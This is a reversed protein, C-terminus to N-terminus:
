TTSTTRAGLDHAPLVGPARGDPRDRAGVARDPHEAGLGAHQARHLVLRVTLGAALVFGVLYGRVGRGVDSPAAHEDGPAIDGHVPEGSDPKINSM